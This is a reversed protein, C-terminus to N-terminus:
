FVSFSVVSDPVDADCVFRLSSGGGGDRYGVLRPFMVPWGCWWTARPWPGRRPASPWGSAPGLGSLWVAPPRDVSGGPLLVGRFRRTARPSHCDAAAPAVMAEGPPEQRRRHRPFSSPPPEQRPLPLPPRERAELLALPARPTSANEGRTIM